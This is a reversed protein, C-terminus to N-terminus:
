GSRSYFRLRVKLPLRKDPQPPIAIAAHFVPRLILLVDQLDDKLTGSAFWFDSRVSLAEFSRPEVTANAPITIQDKGKALYGDRTLLEWGFQYTVSDRNVLRVVPRSDPGFTAEPNTAEFQLNYAAPLRLAHLTVPKQDFYVPRGANM